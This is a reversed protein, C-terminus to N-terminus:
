LNDFNTWNTLKRKPKHSRKILFLIGELSSVSVLSSLCHISSCGWIWFPALLRVVNWTVLRWGGWCGVERMWKLSCVSAPVLCLSHTYDWIWYPHNSNIQCELHGSAIPLTPSSQTIREEAHKPPYILMASIYKHRNQTHGNRTCPKYLVIKGQM